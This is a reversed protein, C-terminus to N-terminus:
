RPTRELADILPCEGTPGAGHCARALRTLARRIAKLEAIKADIDDLKQTARRKVEACSAGRQVRLALLGGIEKLSFGLRQSRKIFDLRAIHEPAYVRFTGTRPPRPMLGLREYYRVTETNVGAAKAVRGITLPKM